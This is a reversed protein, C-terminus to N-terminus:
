ERIFQVTKILGNEVEYISVYKQKNGGYSVVEHNIVFKGQNIQHIIKVSVKAEKFMPEFISRLHSKGKNGLTINPYTFVQIDESYNKLFSDLDHRNYSDMRSNVVSLPTLINDKAFASASILLFLITTLTKM